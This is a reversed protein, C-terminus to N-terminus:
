SDFEDIQDIMKLQQNFIKQMRRQLLLERKLRINEIKRKVMEENMKELRRRRAKARDAATMIKPPQSKQVQQYDGYINIPNNGYDLSDELGNAQVTQTLGISLIFISILIKSIRM